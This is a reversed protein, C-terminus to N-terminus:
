FPYILQTKGRRRRLWIFVGAAGAVVGVVVWSVWGQNGSPSVSNGPTSSEGVTLYLTLVERGDAADGATLRITYNGPAQLSCTASSTYAGQCGMPLGSFVYWYPPVGGSSTANFSVNQLPTASTPGTLTVNFAPAVLVPLNNPVATQGEGDSVSVGVSFFGQNPFTCNLNPTTAGPCGIGSDNWRASFPGVGGTLVLPLSHNTEADAIWTGNYTLSGGWDAQLLAPGLVTFPGGGGALGRGGYDVLDAEDPDYALAGYTPAQGEGSSATLNSWNGGSFGWTQAFYTPFVFASAGGYMILQALTPDYAMSAYTRPAPANGVSASINTWTQSSFTWTGIAAGSLSGGFLLVYHDLSDYAMVPSQTVPCTQGTTNLHSWLGGAYMWTASCNGGYYLVGPLMPDYTMAGGNPDPPPGEGSTRNTWSGASYTWTENVLGGSGEGGFLVVERDLPDYVMPASYLQPPSKSPHLLTWYGGELIATENSPGCFIGYPGAPHCGGFLVTQNDAEDFALSAGYTENVGGSAISHWTSSVNSSEAVPSDSSPRGVTLTPYWVPHSRFTEFGTGPSFGSLVILTGLWAAGVATIKTACARMRRVCRM